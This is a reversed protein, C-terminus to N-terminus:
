AYIEKGCIELFGNEIKITYEIRNRYNSRIAQLNELFIMHQKREANKGPKEILFTGCERIIWVYETKNNEHLSEMIRPFDYKYYDERYHKVPIIANNLANILEYDNYKYKMKMEREKIAAM